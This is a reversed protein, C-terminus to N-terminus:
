SIGAYGPFLVVNTSELPMEGFYNLGGQNMWFAELMIKILFIPWSYAFYLIGRYQLYMEIFLTTGENLKDQIVLFAVKCM